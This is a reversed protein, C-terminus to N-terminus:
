EVPVTVRVPRCSTGDCVWKIVTKTKVRLAAEPPTQPGESIRPTIRPPSVRVGQAHLTPTKAVFKSRYHSVTRRSARNAPIVYRVSSRHRCVGSRCHQRAFVPSALLVALAFAITKM